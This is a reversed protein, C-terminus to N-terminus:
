QFEKDHLAVRVAAPATAEFIFSDIPGFFDKWQENTYIPLSMQLVRPDYFRYYLRAEMAEAQVMLFKRLHRRVELFPQPCTLYVGWSKGWGERVLSEMLRSNKPLNVLYPAVDALADGQPGEYLSRYQEVSERLLVLARRSRAADVIAFLPYKQQRLAELARVKHVETEPTVQEASEEHPTFEEFYVAFYTTGAHLWSANNAEAERIMQGDLFTGNSSKLDRVRCSRGDWALEFHLPSMSKDHPVALGAATSSGVQLSQGPTVITKHFALPGWQVQVILRQGVNAHNM